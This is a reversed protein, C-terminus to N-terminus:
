PRAPPGSSLQSDRATSCAPRAAGELGYEALWSLLEERTAGVLRGGTFRIDDTVEAVCAPPRRFSAADEDTAFEAEALVLGHRPSDFVDVGLPPVSLRTKTLVAGPLGSLVEYEARSLYVNTVLGQLAGPRAAPVKQTLKYEITGDELFRTRRLRLRTDALYLDTIRRTAVVGSADPPHALLFRREREARAYKERPHSPRPVLDNDETM